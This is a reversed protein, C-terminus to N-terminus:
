PNATRMWRIRAGPTIGHRRAYGAPVEVVYKAPGISDYTPTIQFPVTNAHVTTIVSDAGAYLIDLSSPTSAMYFSQFEETPFLFLMGTDDPIPTREMLGRARASDTEAVEIAITALDAGDRSFTLEGSLDWVPGSGAALTEPSADPSCAALAICLLALCFPRM